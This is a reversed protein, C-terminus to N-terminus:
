SAIHVKAPRAPLDADYRMFFEMNSQGAALFVDGVQVDEYTLKESSGCVTLTEGFSTKLPGIGVSWNGGPDATCSAETGQVTIVLSEGPEATGWIRVKKDRQLIMHDRFLLAPKLM